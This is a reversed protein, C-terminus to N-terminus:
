GRRRGRPRRSRAPLRSWVSRVLALAVVLAGATRLKNLFMGKVVENTLKAVRDPAGGTLTAATRVLLETPVGGRVAGESDLLVALGGAPLLTGHKLLRKRLM